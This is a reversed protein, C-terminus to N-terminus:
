AKYVHAYTATYAIGCTNNGYAFRVFGAEGWSAGWSNRVKWSGNPSADVGVAQANTYYFSDDCVTMVGGTYTNWSRAHVLVTLPGTSQVYSAIASESYYGWYSFDDLGVVAKSTDVHCTGAEGNYATFPYDAAAVLGKVFYLYNYAYEISHDGIYDARGHDSCEIIQEVSLETSVNLKRM